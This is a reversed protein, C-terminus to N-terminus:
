WLFNYVAVRAASDGGLQIESGRDALYYAASIAAVSLLPGAFVNLGVILSAPVGYYYLFAHAYIEKAIRTQGLGEPNYSSSNVYNKAITKCYNKDLMSRTTKIGKAGGETYAMEEATLEVFQKPMTLTVEQNM